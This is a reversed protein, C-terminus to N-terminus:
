FRVRRLPQHAQPTSLAVVRQLTEHTKTQPVPQACRPKRPRLSPSPSTAAQTRSCAHANRPFALVTPQPSSPSPPKHRAGGADNQTQRRHWLRPRKRHTEFPKKLGGGPSSPGPHARERLISAMHETLQRGGVDLRRVAHPLAYGPSWRSPMETAVGWGGWGPPFLGCFPSVSIDLTKRGGHYWLISPPASDHM